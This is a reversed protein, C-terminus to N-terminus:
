VPDRSIQNLPRIVQILASSSVPVLLIPEMAQYLLMILLYLFEVFMSALRWRRLFIGSYLRLPEWIGKFTNIDPRPFLGRSGGDM